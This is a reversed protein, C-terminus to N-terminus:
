CTDCLHPLLWVFVCTTAAAAVVVLAVVEFVAFLEVHRFYGFHCFNLQIKRDSKTENAWVGKIATTLSKESKVRQDRGDSLATRKM